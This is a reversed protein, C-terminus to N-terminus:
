SSFWSSLSSDIRNHIDASYDGYQCYQSGSLRLVADSDSGNQRHEACPLHYMKYRM